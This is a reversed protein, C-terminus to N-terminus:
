RRPAKGVVELNGDRTWRLEGRRVAANILPVRFGLQELTYKNALHGASAVAVQIPSPGTPKAKNTQPGPKRGSGPRPGGRREVRSM